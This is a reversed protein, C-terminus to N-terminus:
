SVDEEEAYRFGVREAIFELLVGTSRRPVYKGTEWESITQQRMGLRNALDQQSWGAHERLAKVREGSWGGSRRRRPTIRYTIRAPRFVAWAEEINVADVLWGAELWARGQSTPSNAWWARSRWASRPLSDGLITEIKDFTLRVPRDQDLPRLYDYLPYYKAGRKMLEERGWDGRRAYDNSLM